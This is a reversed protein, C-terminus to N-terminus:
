KRVHLLKWIEVSIFLTENENMIENFSWSTSNGHLYRDKSCEIINASYRCYRINVIDDHIRDEFGEAKSGYQLYVTSHM